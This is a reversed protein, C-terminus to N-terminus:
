GKPQDFRAGAATLHNRVDEGLGEIFGRDHRRGMALEISAFERTVEIAAAASLERWIERSAKRRPVLQRYRRKLEEFRTLASM